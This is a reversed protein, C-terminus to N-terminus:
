PNWGQISTCRRLPISTTHRLTASYRSFGKNTTLLTSINRLHPRGAKGKIHGPFSSIWCAVLWAFPDVDRSVNSGLYRGESDDGNCLKNVGHRVGASHDVICQLYTEESIQNDLRGLVADRICLSSMNRVKKAAQARSTHRRVV